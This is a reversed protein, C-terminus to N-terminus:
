KMNVLRAHRLFADVDNGAILRRAERVHCEPWDWWKISQLQEVIDPPFRFRITRAPVGGMIAFAPVDRIVVAGAAVIAGNGISVGDRV